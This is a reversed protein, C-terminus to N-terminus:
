YGFLRPLFLSLWPVYIILLLVIVMAAYMPILPRIVKM